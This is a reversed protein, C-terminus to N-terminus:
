AHSFSDIINNPLSFYTRDMTKLYLFCYIKLDQLYLFYELLGPLMPLSCAFTFHLSHYAQTIVDRLMKPPVCICQM